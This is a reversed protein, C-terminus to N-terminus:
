RKHKPVFKDPNGRHKGVYQDLPWLRGIENRYGKRHAGKKGGFLGRNSRGSGRHSVSKAGFSSFLNV